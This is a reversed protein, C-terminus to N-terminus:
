DKRDANEEVWVYQYNSPAKKLRRMHDHESNCWEEHGVSENNECVLFSCHKCDKGTESDCEIWFRNLKLQKDFIELNDIYWVYGKKGNLYKKMEEFNIQTMDELSKEEFCLKTINDLRITDIEKDIEFGVVEKLTFKAVIRGDLIQLVPSSNPEYWGNLSYTYTIPAFTKCNIHPTACLSPSKKTGKGRSCYIYVDIPLECKPMTKSIALTKEGNLIKQVEKPKFNMLIAQKM